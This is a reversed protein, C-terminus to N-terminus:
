GCRRITADWSPWTKWRPAAGPPDGPRRRGGGHVHGPGRVAHAGTPVPLRQHGRYEDVLLYQVRAQWRARLTEDAALMRAPLRILDDFDVSQYARLTAEYSRYVRVAEAEDPGQAVRAAGDPDLLANKWLSITQQVARLRARDTTALLESSARPM